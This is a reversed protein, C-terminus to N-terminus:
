SLSPQAETEEEEAMGALGEIEELLKAIEDHYWKVFYRRQWDNLNLWEAKFDDIQTKLDKTTPGTQKKKNKRKESRLWRSSGGIKVPKPLKGQRIHRYLTAPNIGGFFHCVEKRNLLM